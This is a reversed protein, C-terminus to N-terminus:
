SPAEEKKEHPVPEFSKRGLKGLRFDRLFHSYVLSLDIEGQAKIHNLRKGLAYFIDDCTELGELPLQYHKEITGPNNALYNKLLFESVLRTGLIADKISNICCLWYGHEETEISPMMIGPTDLLEFNNKLVSWEQKQTVGPREGTAALTRGTLKNILTSKGTNPIGIVMMRLIPPKIGKKIFKEWRDKMVDKSKALVKKAAKNDLANIFMYPEGSKQFWAEWQKLQEPEALNAKNLIIIRKKQGLTKQIRPNGSILPVRADRVELVLDVLKLKEQLERMAKAMHGPYWNIKHKQEGQKKGQESSIKTEKSPKAKKSPKTETNTKNM